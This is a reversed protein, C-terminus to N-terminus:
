THDCPTGATPTPRFRGNLGARLVAPVVRISEAIFSLVGVGGLAVKGKWVTPAGYKGGVV